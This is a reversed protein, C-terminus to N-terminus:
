QKEVQRVTLRAASSVSTILKSLTILYSATKKLEHPANLTHSSLSLGRNVLGGTNREFRVRQPVAECAVVQSLVFVEIGQNQRQTV